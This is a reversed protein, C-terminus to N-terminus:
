RPRSRTWINDNAYTGRELEIKIREADATAARKTLRSGYYVEDIWIGWSRSGIRDIQITM